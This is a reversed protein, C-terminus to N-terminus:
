LKFYYNFLKWKQWKKSVVGKFSKRLVYEEIDMQWLRHSQCYFGRWWQRDLVGVVWGLTKMEELRQCEQSRTLLVHLVSYFWRQGRSLFADSECPSRSAKEFPASLSISSIYKRCIQHKSFNPHVKNKYSNHLNFTIFPPRLNYM